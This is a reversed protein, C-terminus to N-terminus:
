RGYAIASSGGPGPSFLSDIQTTLLAPIKRVLKWFVRFSLFRRVRVQEDMAM